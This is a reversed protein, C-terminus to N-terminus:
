FIILIDAISIDYSFIPSKDIFHLFLYSYKIDILKLDLCSFLMFSSLNLSSQRDACVIDTEHLIKVLLFHFTHFLIM